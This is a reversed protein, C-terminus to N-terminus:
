FNHKKEIYIVIKNIISKFFQKLLINKSVVRAIPPSILYYLTIFLQGCLNKSLIEDRYKQLLLIEYAQPSNFVANAIFCKTKIADEFGLLNLIDKNIDNILVKFHNDKNKLKKCLKLSKKYTSITEKLIPRIEENSIKKTEWSRLSILSKSRAFYYQAQCLIEESLQEYSLINKSYELLAEINDEIMYIHCLFLLSNTKIDLYEQLDFELVKKFYIKAQEYNKAYFCYEGITAWGLFDKDFQDCGAELADFFYNAAREKDKVSTSSALAEIGAQYFNAGIDSNEKKM